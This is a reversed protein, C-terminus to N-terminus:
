NSRLPCFWVLLTDGVVPKKLNKVDLVKMLYISYENLLHLIKAWVYQFLVEAKLM